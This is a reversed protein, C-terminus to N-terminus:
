IKASALIKDSERSASVLDKQRNERELIKQGIWIAFFAFGISIVSGIITGVKSTFTGLSLHAPASLPGLFAYLGMPILILFCYSHSRGLLDRWILYLTLTMLMLAGVNVFIWWLPLGLIKLPQNDGFYYWLGFHIAPPEFCLALFATIFFMKWWLSVTMSGKEMKDFIFLMFPGVYLIYVFLLYLPMQIGYFSEVSVQGVQPYVFRGLLATHNEYPLALVIGLIMWIPYSVNDRKALRIAYLVVIAALIATLIIVITQAPEPMTLVPRDCVFM